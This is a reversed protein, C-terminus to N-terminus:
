RAGPKSYGERPNAPKPPRAANWNMQGPESTDWASDTLLILPLEGIFEVRLDNKRILHDIRDEIGEIPLFSLKGYVPSHNLNHQLLRRDKSGKLLFALQSRGGKKAIESTARLIWEREHIPTKFPV